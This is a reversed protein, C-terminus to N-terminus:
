ACCVAPREGLPACVTGCSSYLRRPSLSIAPVHVRGAELHTVDRGLQGDFIKASEKGGADFFATKGEKVVNATRLGHLLASPNILLIYSQLAVKVAFLRSVLRAARVRAHGPRAAAANNLDLAGRGLGKHVHVVAHSPDDAARGAASDGQPQFGTYPPASRAAQPGAGLARTDAEPSSSRVALQM